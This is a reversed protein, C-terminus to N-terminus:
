LPEKLFEYSTRIDLICQLPKVVQRLLFMPHRSGLIQTGCMVDILPHLANIVFHVNDDITQM